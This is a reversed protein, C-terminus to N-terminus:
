FIVNAEQLRRVSSFPSACLPVRGRASTAQNKRLHTLSTIGKRLWTAEVFELLTFAAYQSIKFLRVAFAIALLIVPTMASKLRGSGEKVRIKKKAQM